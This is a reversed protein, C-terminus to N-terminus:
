NSRMKWYFDVFGVVDGALPSTVFYGSPLTVMYKGGFCYMPVTKYFGLFAMEFSFMSYEPIKAMKM